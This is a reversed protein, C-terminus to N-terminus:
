HTTTFETPLVQGIFVEGGRVPNAIQSPKTTSLGGIGKFLSSM